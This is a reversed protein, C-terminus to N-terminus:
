RNANLNLNFVQQAKVYEYGIGKYFAHADTRQAGSRVRVIGYGAERVWQECARMLQKGIGLRQCRQDVVLGGIEAFPDSELLHRGHVHAWGVVSNAEHEMVFVAHDTDQMIRSLRERM